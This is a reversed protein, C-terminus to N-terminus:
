EERRERPTEPLASLELAPVHMPAPEISPLGPPPPTALRGVGIAAPGELAAITSFSTDNTSFNADGSALAAASM